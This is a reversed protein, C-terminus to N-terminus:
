KLSPMGYGSAEDEGAPALDTTAEYLAGRVAAVPDDADKDWLVAALGAVHPAAMSTGSLIAYEGDLWTSEINVGPAVFELDGEDQQRPETDDNTGRSSWEPVVLDSDVAGVSVVSADAAPYDISGTYPGDNGAAAVVLVHHDTAYALSESMLPSAADSGAGLDIINAGDDVATRIAAAVDDAYCVGDLGCVKYVALNAAPAIGVIGLGDAGGDAAVTGAVHTGHGNVDDCSEDVLPEHGSFDKCITIRRELDPHTTDIGTDLVAITVGEGNTAHPLGVTAAVGWPLQSTPETRGDTAERSTVGVAAEPTPTADALISLKQVPQLDVGFLKAVRLQWDSMDATFGSEFTNRVSLGSKWIGATSKVLYRGSGSTKTAAFAPSATGLFVCLALFFALRKTSMPAGTTYCMGALAVILVGGEGSSRRAM